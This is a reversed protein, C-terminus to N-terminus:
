FPLRFYLLLLRSKTSAVFLLQFPGSLLLFLVAWIPSYSSERTKAVPKVICVLYEEVMLIMTAQEYECAFYERVVAINLAAKYECVLFGRIVLLNSVLLISFSEVLKVFWNWIEVFSLKYSHYTLSFSTKLLIIQFIM